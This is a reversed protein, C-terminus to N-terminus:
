KLLYDIWGPPPNTPVSYTSLDSLDVRKENLTLELNQFLVNSYATRLLSIKQIDFGMMTAMCIDTMSSNNSFCIVGLPLPQPDLPGNGQGGVIGDCLSYIVRQPENSLTGDKKGFIAIKNLDMVMRWCTDNGHWGAGLQHVKKPRSLRWFIAAGLRWVWYKMKGQHRNANDLAFESLRRLISKGPYCDGGSGVGGVRHHPLYEKDGTLGVINKLAGTIGAMKHTKIKPMSIVSDAEFLEKTICYKHKGITHSKALRDPDYDIVRFINKTSSIPELYSDKGLDFIIYNSLTNIETTPNNIRPDFTVRRFDKIMIPVSHIISLEAIADYFQKRLMKEWDCGQIPADGILISSPKNELLLEVTAFLFSDNTRLCIKDVDKGNHTVWNPKLLIRKNRIISDNDLIGKGVKRIKDKLLVKNDYLKLLNEITRGREECFLTEINVFDM